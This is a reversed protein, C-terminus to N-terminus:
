IMLDGKSPCQDKRYVTFHNVLVVGVAPAKGDKIEDGVTIAGSLTVPNGYPDKSPYEINYSTMKDEPYYKTATIRAEPLPQQTDNDKNCSVVTLLMLGVLGIHYAKM